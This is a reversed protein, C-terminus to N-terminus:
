FSKSEFELSSNKKFEFDDREDRFFNFTIILRSSLNIRLRNDSIVFCM